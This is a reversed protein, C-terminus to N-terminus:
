FCRFVKNQRKEEDLSKKKKKKRLLSRGREEGSMAELDVEMEELILTSNASCSVGNESAWLAGNHFFFFYFIALSSFIQAGNECRELSEWMLEEQTPILCNM